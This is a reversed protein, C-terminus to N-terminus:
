WLGPQSIPEPLTPHVYSWLQVCKQPPSPRFPLPSGTIGSARRTDAPTLPPQTMFTAPGDETDTAVTPRRPPRSAGAPATSPKPVYQVEAYGVLEPLSDNRAALQTGQFSLNFTTASNQSRPRCCQLDCVTPDRELDSGSSDNSDRPVFSEDGISGGTTAGEDGSRDKPLCLPTPPWPFEFSFLRGFFLVCALSANGGM